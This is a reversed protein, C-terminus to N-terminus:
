PLEHPLPARVDGLFRRESAGFARWNERAQRLSVLNAGGEYDPDAFQVSDDEWYCVPCLEFSGQSPDRLTLCGCCPCACRKEDM